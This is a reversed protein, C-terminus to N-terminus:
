IRTVVEVIFGTKYIIFDTKSCTRASQLSGNQLPILPRSTQLANHVVPGRLELLPILYAGREATFGSTKVFKLHQPISGM